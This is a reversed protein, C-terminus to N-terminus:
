QTVGLPRWAWLPHIEMWHAHNDDVVWSGSMAVHAGVPPPKLSNRYDACAAEADSQHVTFECPIEYVLNGEEHSLNGANLFKEQGADLKLWGHTDGDKEHRVGDRGKGATADVVTGTVTVCAKMIQLREPKYVHKWADDHAGCAAPPDAKAAIHLAIVFLACAAAAVIIKKFM